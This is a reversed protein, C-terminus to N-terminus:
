RKGSEHCEREDTSLNVSRILRSIKRREEAKPLWAKRSCREAWTALRNSYQEEEFGVATMCCADSITKCAADADGSLPLVASSSNDDLFYGDPLSFLFSVIVHYFRLFIWPYLNSSYCLCIWCLLFDLHAPLLLQQPLLFEYILNISFLMM